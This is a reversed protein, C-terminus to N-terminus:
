ENDTGKMTERARNAIITATARAIEQVTKYPINDFKQLCFMLDADVMDIPTEIAKIAKDLKFKLNENEIRLQEIENNETSVFCIDGCKQKKLLKQLEETDKIIAMNSMMM